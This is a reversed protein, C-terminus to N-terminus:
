SHEEYGSLNRLKGQERLTLDLGCSTCLSHHSLHVFESETVTGVGASTGGLARLGNRQSIDSAEVALEEASLEFVLPRHGLRLFQAIFLSHGM